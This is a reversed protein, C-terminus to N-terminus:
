HSRAHFLSAPLITALLNDPGTPVCTSLVVEATSTKGRRTWPPLVLVPGTASASAATDAITRTDAMEVIPWDGPLEIAPLEAPAEDDPATRVVTPQRDDLIRLTLKMAEVFTNASLAPRPPVQARARQEATLQDAVNV